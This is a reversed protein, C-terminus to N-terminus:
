RADASAGSRKQLKELDEVNKALVSYSFKLVDQDRETLQATSIKELEVQMRSLIQLWALFEATAPRKQLGLRIQEFHAIVQELAPVTFAQEGFRQQVIKLLDDPTPPPINYFVCRRLFADPLNKESNSTLILIPRERQSATFTRETEKVTFELKEIEHLVDNPLDRPAKDIEDILVVSRTPGVGRYEKRLHQNVAQRAPDSPSKSLLIALGLAEYSIFREADIAAREETDGATPVSSRAAQFHGLADYQYFLDRAASTTKTHFVLPPPLDLEYAVSAALQTKGTGPIGTLLLPQGLALAVNVADSLGKGAIYLEPADLREDREFPPLELKPQRKSIKTGDGQYLRFDESM